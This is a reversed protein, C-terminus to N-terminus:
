GTTAIVAGDDRVAIAVPVTSELLKSDLIDLIEDIIVVASMDDSDDTWALMELLIAAWALWVVLAVEEDAPLAAGVASPPGAARAPAANSAAAAQNHTNDRHFSTAFCELSQTTPSANPTISVNLITKYEGTGWRYRLGEESESKL